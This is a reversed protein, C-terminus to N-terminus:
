RAEADLVSLTHLVDSRTPVALEAIASRFRILRLEGIHYATLDQVSESTSRLMQALLAEYDLGLAEHYHGAAGLREADPLEDVLGLVATRLPDRLINEILETSTARADKRGSILGRYIAVFDDSRYALGLMGFLREITNSEKDRLLKVLAEHGPTQRVADRAAGETLIVRRDLYRYARSVTAEITRDLVARDLEIPPVRRTIRVLARLIQYRVAGNKERTLWDLLVRAADAPDFRAVTAPIRVRTIDTLTEDDIAAVLAQFGAAGYEQLVLQADRRTHERGLMGIVIPLGEPPKCRGIARLAALRVQREPRAALAVLVDTFHDAARRAIADGLAVLTPVSGHRLLADLRERADSGIIEGSAILNVVITARVEPSEEFSLRMFLPRADPDLVSRAAIAAARVRPSTHEALRDLIPVIRTRGARTFLELAREVVAESPHYLILGPILAAKGEQELVDLAAIVESDRESDLARVLTELSAIDLDLPVNGRRRLRSRFLDLYPARLALAAWMWLLALAVVVGALVALPAGLATLGLVFAGAVAQGGRQGVVDVFNKTRRRASDDLPLFVLEAATRHLSYRLSGDAAKIALAAALGGIAIMGVGSVVLLLPLVALAASVGLRRVIVGVLAVQVVLSALNLAFAVTGFYAGLEAAPVNAAVTSKFVYDAITVCVTAALMLIAVNRAYPNRAIFRASAGLGSAATEKPLTAPAAQRSFLLPLLSTLAFGVSAALVLHRAPAIRALTSALGTGALAGLVSGAGIVGYLRRAQTISFLSALQMWFQVLVIAALVGSWVYLAYVGSPGLQGLLQWFGLTVIAAGCLCAVLVGRGGLRSALRQQANAVAVSLAAIAIFVWPLHTAPVKALFLADRATELMAHSAVFGFLMLFAAATDRREDPRVVLSPRWM